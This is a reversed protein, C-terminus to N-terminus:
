DSGGQTSVRNTPRTGGQAKRCQTGQKAGSRCLERSHIMYMQM